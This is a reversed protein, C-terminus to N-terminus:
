ANGRPIVIQTQTVIAAVKGDPNRITTQWVMTTRGIHLPISIAKMVPGEGARFFNTKSELTGTRHGRPLNAVTGAAGMVDAFAMLAGGNVRGSRNIHVPKIRMEARVRKKTISIIRMGLARPMGSMLFVQRAAAPGVGLRGM